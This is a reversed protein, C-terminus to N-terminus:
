PLPAYKYSTLPMNTWPSYPLLIFYTCVYEHIDMHMFIYIENRLIYTLVYKDIEGNCYHLYM